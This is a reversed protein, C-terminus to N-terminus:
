RKQVRAKEKKTKIYGSMLIAYVALDHLTDSVKEDAVKLVGSKCFTTVRCLKDTMRTLFGIETPAIGLAEVRTFNAFADVTKDNGAYDHNKAALTARMKEVTEDFYDLLEDRTM